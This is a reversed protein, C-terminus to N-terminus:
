RPACRRRQPTLRTRDAAVGVVPPRKDLLAAIGERGEDSAFREASLRAMRALDGALDDGALEDLMTRTAALAGPAGRGLQAVLADVTADLEDEAVARDLLGIESRAHATSRSGPSSSSAPPRDGSGACAPVAIIAPVVGLRVESFGFTRQTLGVALDCAAVLGLGGARAAGNVRAVVPLPGQM